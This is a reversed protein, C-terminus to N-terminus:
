RFSRSGFGRRLRAPPGGVCWAAEATKSCKQIGLSASERERDSEGIQPLNRRTCKISSLMCMFSSSLLSALMRTRGNEFPPRQFAFRTTPARKRSRIASLTRLFLTDLATYRRPLGRMATREPNGGVLHRTARAVRASSYGSKGAVQLVSFRM